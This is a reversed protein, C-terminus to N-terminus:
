SAKEGTMKEVVKGAVYEAEEIRDEKSRVWLWRLNKILVIFILFNVASAILAALVFFLMLVQDLSM